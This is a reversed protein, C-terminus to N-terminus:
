EVSVYIGDNKNSEQHSSFTVIWEKTSVMGGSMDNLPRKSMLDSVM